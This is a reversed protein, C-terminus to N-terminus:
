RILHISGSKHPMSSNKYVMGKWDTGNIFKSEIKWIYVGQPMPEGNFTGDWGDVPSGESDVKSNEWMLRGWKNFVQVRYVEIGSGLPKFTRLSVKGSAPEFANPVFLQGPVGVVQVTRQITDKCGEKNEAILTVIFRGTDPYSISESAYVKKWGWFGL